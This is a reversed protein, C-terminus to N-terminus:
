QITYGLLESLRRALPGIDRYLLTLAEDQANKLSKSELPRADGWLSPVSALWVDPAFNIHRHVDVRLIGFSITSSKVEEEAVMYIWVGTLPRLKPKRQRPM